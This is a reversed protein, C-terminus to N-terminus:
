KHNIQLYGFIIGTITAGISLLYLIVRNFGRLNTVLEVTPAISKNISEATETLVQIDRIIQKNQSDNKKNYDAIEAFRVDDDANHKQMAIRIMEM